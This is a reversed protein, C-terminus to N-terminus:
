LSGSTNFWGTDAGTDNYNVYFHNRTWLHVGYEGTTKWNFHRAPTGTLGVILAKNDQYVCDICNTSSFVAIDSSGSYDSRVDLAVNNRFQTSVNSEMLWVPGNHVECGNSEITTGICSHFEYAQAIEASGGRWSVYGGNDSANGSFHSYYGSFYHGAYRWRNAYNHQYQTSTAFHLYFGRQVDNAQNNTIQSTITSAAGWFFGVQVCEAACGQVRSGAMGRFFFGYAVSTTNPSTTNGRVGLDRVEAYAWTNVGDYNVFHLVCVPYGVAVGDWFRATNDSVSSATGTTKKLITSNKGDGVISVREYVLIPADVCFTGAPIYVYGGGAARAVSVAKQIATSNASAKGSDGDGVAGYRRVDGSPYSYDTPTVSATVEPQTRAFCPPTCTQANATNSTMAVGLASGLLVKSMDRRDM